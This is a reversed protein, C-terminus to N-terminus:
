KRSRKKSQVTKAPSAKKAKKAAPKAARKAKKAQAKPSKKASAPKAVVSAVFKASPETLAVGLHPGNCPANLSKWGQDTTCVYLLDNYCMTAGPDVIEGTNPNECAM